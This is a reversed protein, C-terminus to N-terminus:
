RLCFGTHSITPLELAQFFQGFRVRGRGRQMVRRRRQLVGCGGGVDWGCFIGGGRGRRLRLAACVVAGGFTGSLGRRLCLLRQLCLLLRMIDSSLWGGIAAGCGRGGCGFCRSSHAGRGGRGGRRRRRLPRLRTNCCSGGDGWRRGVSRGHPQTRRALVGTLHAANVLFCALAHVPIRQVLPHVPRSVTGNHTAHPAQSLHLIHASPLTSALSLVGQERRTRQGRTHLGARGGTAIRRTHPRHSNLQPQEGPRQYTVSDVQTSSHIVCV